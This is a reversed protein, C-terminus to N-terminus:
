CNLSTMGTFHAVVYTTCGVLSVLSLTTIRGIITGTLQKYIRRLNFVKKQKDVDSSEEKSFDITYIHPGYDDIPM